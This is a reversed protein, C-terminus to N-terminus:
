NGNKNLKNNLEDYMQYAKKETNNKKSNLIQDKRIIFINPTIIKVSYFNKSKKPKEYYAMVLKSKNSSYHILYFTHPIMNGKSFAYENSLECTSNLGKYNLANDFTYLPNFKVFKKGDDHKEQLSKLTNNADLFLVQPTHYEYKNKTKTIFDISNATGSNIKLVIPDTFVKGKDKIHYKYDERTSAINNSFPLYSNTVKNQENNSMYSMFSVVIAVLSLVLSASSFISNKTYKNKKNIGNMIRKSNM